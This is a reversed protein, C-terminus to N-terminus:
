NIDSLFENNLPSKKYTYSPFVVSGFSRRLVSVPIMIGVSAWEVPSSIIRTNVESKLKPFAPNLAEIENKCDPIYGATPLNSVRSSM